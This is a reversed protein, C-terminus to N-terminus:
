SYCLYYIFTCWIIRFWIFIPSYYFFVTGSNEVVGVDSRIYIFYPDSIGLEKSRDVRRKNPVTPSGILGSTQIHYKLVMPFSCHGIMSVHHCVSVPPIM